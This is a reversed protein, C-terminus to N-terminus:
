QPLQVVGNAITVSTQKTLSEVGNSATVSVTYTGDQYTSMTASTAGSRIDGDTTTWSYTYTYSGNPNTVTATLEHKSLIKEYGIYVNFEIPPPPATVNIRSSEYITQGLNTKIVLYYNGTVNSPVTLDPATVTTSIGSNLWIHKTVSAIPNSGNSAGSLMFTLIVEDIDSQGTNSVDCRLGSITNGQEITSPLNFGNVPESLELYAPTQVELMHQVCYDGNITVYKTGTWTKPIPFTYSFRSTQQSNVNNTVPQVTEGDFSFDLTIPMTGSTNNKVDIFATAEYDSDSQIFINTSVLPNSCEYPIIYSQNVTLSKAAAGHETNVTITASRTQISYNPTYSINVTANGSGTGASPVLWSATNTITWSDNSTINLAFSGGDGTLQQVEPSITLTAPVSPQFIQITKTNTFDTLKVELATSRDAFTQNTSYYVTIDNNGTGSTKSMGTIWGATNVIEWNTNSEISFTFSGQEANLATGYLSLALEPVFAYNYYYQNLINSDNDKINALRGFDDYEYSIVQNRPDTVSKVGVLQKYSYTTVESNKLEPQQRLLHNFQRWLNESAANNLDGVESLLEDLSEKQITAHALTTNLANRLSIYNTNLVKIIPKASSKSWIFSQVIGAPTEVEVIRANEDYKYKYETFNELPIDPIIRGYLGNLYGEDLTAKDLPENLNLLLQKELVINQNVDTAYQNINSSLLVENGNITKTQQKEIEFSVMNRNIMETFLGPDYDLVYKSITSLHEGESTTTVVRNPMYHKPNTYEYRTTTIISDWGTEGFYQSVMVSDLDLRASTYEYNLPLFLVDATYTFCSEVVGDFDISREMHFGVSEKRNTYDPSYYNQEKLQLLNNSNYVKKKLQQGRLWSNSVIPTYTSYVLDKEVKFEYETYGESKGTSDISYEQVHQYIVNSGYVGSVPNSYTFYNKVEQNVLSGFSTKTSKAVEKISFQHSNKDYHMQNDVTVFGSSVNSEPNVYTYKKGSVFGNHEYNSINKIRLGGIPYGEVPPRPDYANYDIYIGARSNSCNVFTKLSYHGPTLLIIEETGTTSFARRFITDTGKMLLVFSDDYKEHAYGSDSLFNYYYVVVEQEIWVDFYTATENELCPGDHTCNGNPDSEISATKLDDMNVVPMDNYYRNLEWDFVTKGGTPHYITKLTGTKMHAESCSKNASGFVKPREGAYIVKKAIPDINEKGNYYGWHDFDFDSKSPLTFDDYYNFSAILKEDFSDKSYVKEWVEDLQLRKDMFFTGSNAGVYSYVFEVEKVISLGSATKKEVIIRDLKNLVDKETGIYQNSNIDERPSLIFTIVGDKFDIVHPKVSKIRYMTGSQELSKTEYDPNRPVSSLNVLEGNCTYRTETVGAYYTSSHKEMYGDHQYTYSVTDRKNPSLIKHVHWTSEYEPYGNSIPLNQTIDAPHFVYTYGRTNVISTPGATRTGNLQINSGPINLPTNTNSTVYTGSESGVNYTYVDPKYTYGKEGKAMSTYEGHYIQTPNARLYDLIEAASPTQSHDEEEDPMGHVQRSISGGYFLDWGLGVWSAEESLKIGGGHYSLTIDFEIEGSKVTYLPFSIQPLGTSLSVNYTGYKGLSAATPELVDVKGMMEQTYVPTSLLLFLIVSLNFTRQKM